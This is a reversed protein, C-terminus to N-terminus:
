QVVDVRKKEREGEHGEGRERMGRGERRISM